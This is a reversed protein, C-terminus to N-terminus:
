LKGNCIGVDLGKGLWEGQWSHESRNNMREVLIGHAGVIYWASSQACSLYCHGFYVGAWGGVGCFVGSRLPRLRTHSLYYILLYAFCKLLSYTSPLFCYTIYFFSGLFSRFNPATLSPRESSTANSSLAPVLLDLGWHPSCKLPFLHFTGSAPWFQAQCTPLVTLFGKHNSGHSSLPSLPLRSPWSTLPPQPLSPLVHARCPSLKLKPRPLSVARASGLFPLLHTCPM